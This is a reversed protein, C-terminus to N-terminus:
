QDSSGGGNRFSATLERLSDSSINQGVITYITSEDAFVATCFESDEFFYVTGVGYRATEYVESESPIMLEPMEDRSGYCELILDLQQNPNAFTFYFDESGELQVHSYDTMQMQVMIDDDPASPSVGYEACRERMLAGISVPTIGDPFADYDPYAREYMTELEVVVTAAEPSESTAEVTADEADTTEVATYETTTSLEFSEVATTVTSEEDTVSVAAETTRPPYTNYPIRTTVEQGSAPETEDSFDIIFGGQTLRVATTVLDTGFSALTYLNLAVAFIACAAVGSLWRRVVSIRKRKKSGLVASLTSTINQETEEESLEGGSLEAIAATLSAIEDFRCEDESRSLEDALLAQLEALRTRDDDELVARIRYNNSM